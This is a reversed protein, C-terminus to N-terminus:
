KSKKIIIHEDDRISNGPQKEFSKTFMEPKFNDSLNVFNM